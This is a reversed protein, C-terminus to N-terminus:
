HSNTLDLKRVEGKFYSEPMLGLQTFYTRDKRPKSSFILIDRYYQDRLHPHISLFKPSFYIGIKITCFSFQKLFIKFLNKPFNNKFFTTSITKRQPCHLGVAAGEGKKSLPARAFASDKANQDRCRKRVIKKKLFTCLLIPKM